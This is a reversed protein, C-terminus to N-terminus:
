KCSYFQFSRLGANIAIAVPGKLALVAQLANEDEQKVYYFGTVQGGKSKPDYRFSLSNTVRKNDLDSFVLRVSYKTELWLICIGYFCLVLKSALILSKLLIDM